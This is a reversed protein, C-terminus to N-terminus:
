PIESMPTNYADIVRDSLLQFETEVENEDVPVSGTEQSLSAPEHEQEQLMNELENYDLDGEPEEQIVWFDTKDINEYDIPDFAKKDIKFRNQLSLNYHVFVLDNLRQHELRNRRKTHIREFVSWNRECGSSSATQCLIRIAFKKLVPLDGGFLKWWEDPCSVFRSAVASPRGFTGTADRFHGLTSTLDVLAQGQFYKEAMELVRKRLMRDWRRDIINTYPKYLEKKNKFLEKVGKRARRMGEYVYGIAPKEDSDLLRLLKLLHTMVKVTILSNKWFNENMVIDRCEVANGVKLIKKYESSIVMAQLDEKHNYLSQLAIFATGFRTAGPRIIETWGPRKRLWNLPWKQNYIFVTVRSALTALSKVNDLESVDKLVLNLCHTACPSWTISPYNECLKTGALKYNAANDTVLRVVNNRGVMEVIEAFLNCLNTANNAIDYADVPKLFSIGKPCYVLLNILHLQRIDRWGDSMITCGTEVWQERFSDILLSVLKKADGLLKVRLAHYNPAKYGHGIGAIKDVMHQYYPSNCANMPVCADYFFMGIVLDVDHLKAKSQMASKITPQAGDNVTKYFFPHMSSTAKRKGAKVSRAKVNRTLTEEMDEDEDSITFTSEDKDKQATEKLNGQITFRVDSPVKPCSVVEGKYGALHKKVRNIGGGSIVKNCFNCICSKKGNGDIVLTAYDWGIDTKIRVNSQVSSHSQSPAQEPSESDM